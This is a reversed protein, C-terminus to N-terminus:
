NDDSDVDENVSHVFLGDAKTASNRRNQMKIVALAAVLSWPSTRGNVASRFTDYDHPLKQFTGQLMVCHVVSATCASVAAGVSHFWMAVFTILNGHYRSM